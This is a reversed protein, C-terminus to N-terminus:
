KKKKRNYDWLSYSTSIILLISIILMILTSRGECLVLVISGILLVVSAILLGRLLGEGGFVDGLQGLRCECPVAVVEQLADFAHEREMRPSFAPCPVIVAGVARETACEREM